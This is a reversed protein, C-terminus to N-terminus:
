NLFKENFFSTLGPLHLSYKSHFKLTPISLIVSLKDYNAAQLAPKFPETFSEVMPKFGELMGLGMGQFTEIQGNLADYAVDGGDISLKKSAM